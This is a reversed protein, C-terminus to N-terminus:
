GRTRDQASHAAEHRERPSSEAHLESAAQNEAGAPLEVTGEKPLDLQIVKPRFIDRALVDMLPQVEPPPVVAGKLLQSANVDEGYLKRSAGRGEIFIAGEVSVGAFIGKTKAYAFVAGAGRPSAGGAFEASRGLPGVALSVNGSLSLSGHHSFTNVAYEDNLVFVFDTIEVGVLGGFGCGVMGIASPASWRGDECRAVIM